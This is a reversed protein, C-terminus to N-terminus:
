RNRPRSDMAILLIVKGLADLGSIESHRVVNTESGDHLHHPFSEIEPHHPANDWRMIVQGNRNQWHYRYKKIFLTEKEEVLRETVELLSGDSMSLRYRYLAVKELGTDWVSRRVLEVDIVETASSILEDIERLYDEIM